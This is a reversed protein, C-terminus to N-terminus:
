NDSAAKKNIKDDMQQLFRQVLPHSQIADLLATIREAERRTHKKHQQEEEEEWKKLYEATPGQPHPDTHFNESQSLKRKVRTAKSM